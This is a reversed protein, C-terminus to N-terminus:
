QTTRQDRLKWYHEAAETFHGTYKGRAWADYVPESTARRMHASAEADEGVVFRFQGTEDSAAAVIAAAVEAETAFRYPMEGLFDTIMKDYYQRYAAPVPAAKANELTSALINTEKVFGPEVLKVTVNFAALEYRAAEALGEAAFKSASYVSMLPEPAIASSSGLNVFRGGGVARFHPLVRQMVRIVGFLNTDFIGRAVEIPTTELVSVVAQGANNVVCDIKGWKAIAQDVAASVSAENGVDLPLLLLDPDAAEQWRSPDRMTAAVRWGRERFKLAAAKGFGSSSGTILVSKTM